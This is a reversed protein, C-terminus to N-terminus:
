LEEEGEREKDAMENERRDISMELRQKIRRSESVRQFLVFQTMVLCFSTKAAIDLVTGIRAKRRLGKFGM